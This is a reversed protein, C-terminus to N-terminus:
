RDRDRQRFRPVACEVDRRCADLYDAMPVSEALARLVQDFTPFNRKNRLAHIKELAAAREGEFTSDLLILLQGFLRADNATM